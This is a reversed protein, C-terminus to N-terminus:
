PLKKAELKLQTMLKAVKVADGKITHKAKEYFPERLVLHAQIMEMLDVDQVSKILPRQAKAQTLRHFIAGPSVKLYVTIGNQNMWDMNDEYCAAGGGTAIVVNFMRKTERLLRQEVVRFRDEGKEEFVKEITKRTDKEIMEDIDILRFGIKKALEKGLTSKGSGMYGVLYIRM